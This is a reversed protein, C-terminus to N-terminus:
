IAGETNLTNVHIVKDDKFCSQLTPIIIGM